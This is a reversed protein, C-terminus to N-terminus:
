TRIPGDYMFGVILMAAGLALLGGVLGRSTWSRMEVHGWALKASRVLGVIWCIDRYRWLFFIQENELGRACKGHRGLNHAMATLASSSLWRDMPQRVHATGDAAAPRM